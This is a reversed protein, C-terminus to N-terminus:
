RRSPDLWLSDFRVQPYIPLEDEIGHVWPQFVHAATRDWIYIVGADKRILQDAEAARAGRKQRDTERIAQELIKDVEPNQYGANFPGKSHFSNYILIAPDPYLINALNFHFPFSKKRVETMHTGFESVRMDLSVGIEKLQQQMLEAQVIYRANNYIHFTSKFGSGLGAQQMLSKAKAVDRPYIAPGASYGALQPHMLTNSARALGGLEAMASGDIAMTLAQRVKIDDFPKKTVNVGFWNRAPALFEKYHKAFRADKRFREALDVDLVSGWWDLRGAEFELRQTRSDPIIRMVIKDIYAPAYFDAFREWTQATESKQVLRYPGSGITNEATTAFKDGWKKLAAEPYITSGGIGAFKELLYPDPKSLKVTVANKSAEPEISKVNVYQSRWVSIDSMARKLSFAVDGPTIPSGDHFKLGPRMKFTYTLMDSSIDWKEALDPLVESTGSKYRVLGGYWQYAIVQLYNLQTTTPDVRGISQTSFLNLTGGRVPAAASPPPALAAFAPSAVTSAAFAGGYKLFDRRGVLTGSFDDSRQQHISM